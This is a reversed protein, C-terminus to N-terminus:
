VGYKEGKTKGPYLKEYYRYMKMLEIDDLNVPNMPSMVVRCYIDKIKDSNEMEFCVRLDYRTHGNKRIEKKFTYYIVDVDDIEISTRETLWKWEVHKEDYSVKVVTAGGGLQLFTFVLILPVAIETEKKCLMYIGGIAFPLGLIFVVWKKLTSNSLAKFENM